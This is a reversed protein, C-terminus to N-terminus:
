ADPQPSLLFTLCLLSGLVDWCVDWFDPHSNIPSFFSCLPPFESLGELPVSPSILM